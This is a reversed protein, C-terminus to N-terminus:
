GAALALQQLSPPPSVRLTVRYLFSIAGLYVLYTGVALRREERLFLLFTRVETEGLDTPARMFFKVFNLACNIYKKRTSEPRGALKLDAEMKDRCRGM